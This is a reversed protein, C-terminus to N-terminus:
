PYHKKFFEKESENKVDHEKFFREFTSHPDLKQQSQEVEQREIPLNRMRLSWTPTAVRRPFSFFPDSFDFLPRFYFRRM